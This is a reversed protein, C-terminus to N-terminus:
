SDNSAAASISSGVRSAPLRKGFLLLMLLPPLVYFGGFNPVPFLLTLVWAVLASCVIAIKQRGRVFPILTALASAFFIPTWLLTMAQLLSTVAARRRLGWGFLAVSSVALLLFVLQALGGLWLWSWVSSTMLPLMESNQAVREPLAALMEGVWQPRVLFAPTWLLVSVAAFVGLNRRDRAWLWKGIMYVIVPFALQPKLLLLAAGFGAFGKKNQILWHLPLLLWGELMGDSMVFWLPPFLFWWIAERRAIMMVFLLPVIVWVLRFWDPLLALPVFIWLATPLPYYRHEGYPSIGERLARGMSVYNGYDFV